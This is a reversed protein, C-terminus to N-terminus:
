KGSLKKSFNAFLAKEKLLELPLLGTILGTPAVLLLEADYQTTENAYLTHNLWTVKQPNNLDDDSIAQMLFHRNTAHSVIRFGDHKWGQDILRRIVPMNCPSCAHAKLYLVAMPSAATSNMVEQLLLPEHALGFNLAFAEQVIALQYSLLNNHNQSQVLTIQSQSIEQRQSKVKFSLWLSIALFFFILFERFGAKMEKKESGSNTCWWFPTTPLPTTTPLSKATPESFLAPLKKKL